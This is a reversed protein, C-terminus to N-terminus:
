LITWGKDGYCNATKLAQVQNDTLEVLIERELFVIEGGTEEADPQLFIITNNETIFRTADDPVSIGIDELVKRSIM